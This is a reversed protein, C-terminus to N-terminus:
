VDLVHTSITPQTADDSMSGARYGLTVPGRIRVGHAGEPDGDAVEGELGGPLLRRGLGHLRDLPHQRDFRLHDVAAPGALGRPDRVAVEPRADVVLVVGRM